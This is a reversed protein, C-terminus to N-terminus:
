NGAGLLVTVGIAAFVLAAVRHVWVIPVRQVVRDGLLVAPGFLVRRGSGHGQVEGAEDPVLM